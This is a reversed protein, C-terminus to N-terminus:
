SKFVDTRYIEKKKKGRKEEKKKNNENLNLVDTRYTLPTRKVVIGCIFYMKFDVYLVSIVCCNKESFDKFFIFHFTTNFLVFSHPKTNCQISTM